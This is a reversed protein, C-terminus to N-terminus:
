KIKNNALKTTSIPILLKQKISILNKKLNNMDKISAVTTNYKRAISYLSDGKSVIYTVIFNDLNIKQPKFNQRFTLLNDYPMYVDYEGKKPPLFNYKFQRNYQKLEDVSIGAGKAISNMSTGASVKVSALSSAVGRNLFYEKEKSKLEWVDNFAVNMSLIMRIYSRTEAPLYKKDNDLLVSIDDSSAEKIAKQLRGIGCNYAMAALYWKGTKEKLFKLYSIAARTSKIPDQREDIFDDIKLGLSRATSPMIQWIGSAKKPSYARTSFESEAMALYLFEQPVDNEVLMRKLIPIYEYGREFSDIFQEWKDGTTQEYHIQMLNMDSQFSVDIDFAELTDRVKNIYQNDYFYAKMYCSLVLFFIFFRILLLM